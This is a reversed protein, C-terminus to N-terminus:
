ESGQKLCTLIASLMAEEDMPPKRAILKELVAAHGQLQQLKAANRSCIQVHIAGAAIMRVEEDPDDMFGPLVKLRDEDSSGRYPLRRAAIRRTEVRPNKRMREYFAPSDLVAWESTATEVPWTGEFYKNLIGDTEVLVQSRPLWYPQDEILVRIFAATSGAIEALSVRDGTNFTASASAVDAPDVRGVVNDAIVIGVFVSDMPLPSPSEPSPSAGPAGLDPQPAEPASKKCAVLGVALLSVLLLRM